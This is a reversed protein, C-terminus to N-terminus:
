RRTDRARMLQGPIMELVEALTIDVRRGYESVGDGRRVEGM